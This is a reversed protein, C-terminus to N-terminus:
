ELDEINRDRGTKTLIEALTTMNQLIKEATNDEEVKDKQGLYQKGLWIGMTPNKEALLWQSRRLSAKGGERKEAFVESFHKGYENQCFKELTKDDCGLVSCIEAQTCQIHCLSEFQEKSIKKPPRGVTKPM